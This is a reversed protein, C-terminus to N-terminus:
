TGRGGNKRSSYKEKRVTNEVTTNERYGDKRRCSEVNETRQVPNGKNRWARELQGSESREANKEEERQGKKEVVKM